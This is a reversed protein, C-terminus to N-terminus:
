RARHPFTSREQVTPASRIQSRLSGSKQPGCRPFISPAAPTVPLLHLASTRAPLCIKAHAVVSTIVKLVPALAVTIHVHAAEDVDFTAVDTRLYNERQVRIAYSGPQVGSFVLRGQADTLSSRSADGGLLFVEANDVPTH